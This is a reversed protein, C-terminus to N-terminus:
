GQRNVEKSLLKGILQGVTIIFILILIAVASAYSTNFITFAAKYLYVTLIQSGNAPGGQTMAWITDFAQFSLIFRFMAALTIIPLAMPFTIHCFAKWKSAGDIYAAEYPEKPLGQLGAYVIFFIFPTWQWTDVICVTFIVLKSSQLWLISELGVLKSLHYILGFEYGFLYRWLIGTVFPTVFIPISLLVRYIGIGKIQGTYHNFLVALSVGLILQVVIGSLYILTKIISDHAESSSFFESYNQFGIYDVPLFPQTLHVNKFSLDVATIIPYITILLLYLITPAILLLPRWNNKIMIKSKSKQNISPPSLEGVKQKLTNM